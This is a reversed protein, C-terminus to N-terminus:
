LKDPSYGPKVDKLFTEMWSPTKNYEVLFEVETMDGTGYIIPWVESEKGGGGM